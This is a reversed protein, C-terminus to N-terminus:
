FTDPLCDLPEEHHAWLHPQDALTPHYHAGCPTKLDREAPLEALTAVMLPIPYFGIKRDALSSPYALVM